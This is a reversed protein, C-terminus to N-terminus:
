KNTTRIGTMITSEPKTFSSSPRPNVKGNSFIYLGKRFYRFLERRYHRTAVIIAITNLPSHLAVMQSIIMNWFAAGLPVKVYRTSFLIVMPVLTTVAPITIQLILHAILSRHLELSRSSMSDRRKHLNIIINAAIAACLGVILFASGLWVGQFVIFNSDKKSAVLYSGYDRLFYLQPEAEIVDRMESRPQYSTILVIVVPVLGILYTVTITYKLEYNALTKLSGALNGLATVRYLFAVLTSSLTFQLMVISVCLLVYSADESVNALWTRSYCAIEPFLPIPDFLFCIIFDSFFTTATMNVVIWKYVKMHPPTKTLIIIM